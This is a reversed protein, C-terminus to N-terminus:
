AKDSDKAELVRLMYQVCLVATRDAHAALKSGKPETREGHKLRLHAPMACEHTAHFCLLSAYTPILYLSRCPPLCAPTSRTSSASM